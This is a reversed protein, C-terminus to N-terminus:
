DIRDMRECGLHQRPIAMALANDSSVRLSFHYSQEQLHARVQAQLPENLLRRTRQQELPGRQKTKKHISIDEADVNVQRM